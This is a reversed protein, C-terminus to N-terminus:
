ISIYMNYMYCHYINHIYLYIDYLIYEDLYWADEQQMKNNWGAIGVNAHM